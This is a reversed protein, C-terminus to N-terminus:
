QTDYKRKLYILNALCFVNVAILIIYALTYSGSFDYIFGIASVSISGGISVAFSVKPYSHAFNYLGFFRKTLLVLAVSPIAFIGGILIAALYLVPIASTTIFLVSATITCAMILYTGNISGVRDSIYGMGIKFVISSIMTVSMLTAGFEQQYGITQAFGPFHQPVGIALTQLLAFLLFLVFLEKTLDTQQDRKIVTRPKETDEEDEVAGYPLLGSQKPDLSYSVLIAPLSLVLVTLGMLRYAQAWGLSSILSTFVPSFIAGGISSFSLVISVILGNKKEFWSNVMLTVPVWAILGAGIGRFVGLINFLAISSSWGMLYTSIAILLGGSAFAKKISLKEIIIPSYLALIAKFILTMTNHMAVTGRYINLDDAIPTIFVGATMVPLGVGVVALSCCMALIIWHKASKNRM